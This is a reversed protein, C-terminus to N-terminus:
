IISTKMDYFPIMIIMLKQVFKAPIINKEGVEDRLKKRFTLKLYTNKCNALTDLFWMATHVSLITFNNIM